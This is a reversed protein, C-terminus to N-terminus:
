QLHVDDLSLGVGILAILVLTGSPLTAMGFTPPLHYHLFFGFLSEPFYLEVPVSSGM